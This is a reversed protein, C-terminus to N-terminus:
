INTKIKQLTPVNLSFKDALQLVRNLRALASRGMCKHKLDGEFAKLMSKELALKDFKQGTLHTQLIL